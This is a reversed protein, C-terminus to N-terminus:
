PSATSSLISAVTVAHPSVSIIGLGGGFRDTVEAALVMWM